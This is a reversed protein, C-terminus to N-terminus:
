PQGSVRGAAAELFDELASVCGRDGFLRHKSAGVRAGVERRWAPDRALRVTIAVYDDITTALTETV